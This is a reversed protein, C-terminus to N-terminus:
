IVLQGVGIQVAWDPKTSDREGIFLEGVGEFISQKADRTAGSSTDAILVRSSFGRPQHHSDMMM